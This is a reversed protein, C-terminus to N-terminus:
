KSKTASNDGDKKRDIYIFNITAKEYDHEIDEFDASTHRLILETLTQYTIDDGISDRYIYRDILYM